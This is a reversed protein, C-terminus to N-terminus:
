LRNPLLAVLTLSLSLSPLLLLLLPLPLLPLLLLLLAAGAALGLPWSASAATPCSSSPSAVLLLPRPLLFPSNTGAQAWRSLLRMENVPIAAVSSPRQSKMAVAMWTPTQPSPATQPDPPLSLGLHCRHTCLLQAVYLQCREM